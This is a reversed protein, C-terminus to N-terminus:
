PRGVIGKLWEGCLSTWARVAPQSEALGLGHAGDPFVHLAFAVRNRSLASALLLSNEVPVGGDSATHWIFAPPTTADVTTELSLMRRLAKGPKVGLLNEMSGRHGHPGFSIVPYCLIMFDPRPSKRDARDVPAYAILAHHVGASAALHGGASFGLIGIRDPAVSWRAAQDRVVRIARQADALPVPHRYPAVRYYLVFASLGLGNLWRAIPEAEHAAQGGYGGGPCIVVAGHVRKSKALYAVLRPLPAGLGKDFGPPNGAPWLELEIGPKQRATM